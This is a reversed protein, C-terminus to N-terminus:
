ESEIIGPIYTEIEVSVSSYGNNTVAEGKVHSGEVIITQDGDPTPLVVTLEEYTVIQPAIELDDEADYVNETRVGARVINKLGMDFITLTSIAVIGLIAISVIIEILTLGKRNKMFDGRDIWSSVIM